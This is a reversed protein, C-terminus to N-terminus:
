NNQEAMESLADKIQDQTEGYSAEKYGQKYGAKQGLLLGVAFVFLTYLVAGLTNM